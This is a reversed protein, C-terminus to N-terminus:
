KPDYHNVFLQIQNFIDRWIDYNQSLISILPHQPKQINFPCKYAKNIEVDRRIGLLLLNGIAM